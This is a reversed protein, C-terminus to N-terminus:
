LRWNRWRARRGPPLRHNTAGVRPTLGRGPHTFFAGPRSQPPRLPTILLLANDASPQLFGCSADDVTPLPQIVVFRGADHQYASGQLWLSSIPYGFCAPRHRQDCAETTSSETFIGGDWMGRVM